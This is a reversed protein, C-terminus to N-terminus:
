CKSCSYQIWKRNHEFLLHPTERHMSRQVCKMTFMCFAAKEFMNSLANCLNLNISIAAKERTTGITWHFHTLQGVAFWNHLGQILCWMSALALCLQKCRSIWLSFHCIFLFCQLLIKNMCITCLAFYGSRFDIIFLVIYM